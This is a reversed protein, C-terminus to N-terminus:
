TNGTQQHGDGPGGSAFQLMTGPTAAATAAGTAAIGGREVRANTGTRPHGKLMM